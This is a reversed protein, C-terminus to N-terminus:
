DTWKLFDWDSINCTLEGLDAISNSENKKQFKQNEKYSQLDQPFSYTTVLEEFVFCM